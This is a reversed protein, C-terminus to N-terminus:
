RPGGAQSGQGGQTISTATVAGDAGQRGRVVITTGAELDSVEGPKSIQVTTQETTTVTVTAGDATKVYVKGGEIKEVTGVTGGGMRQGGGPQGGPQQGRQGGFGGQQQGYGGGMPRQQAGAAQPPTGATGFWSEAQIGILIGAMLVVGAALALTVKSTGKAPQVALEERLDGPFPSSGLKDMSDAM